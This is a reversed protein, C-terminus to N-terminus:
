TSVDQFLWQGHLFRSKSGEGGTKGEGGLGFVFSLFILSLLLGGGRLLWFIHFLLLLSLCLVNVWRESIDEDWFDVIHRPSHRLFFGIFKHIQTAWSLLLKDLLLALLQPSMSALLMSSLPHLLLDLLVSAASSLTLDLFSSKFIYASSPLFFLLSSRILILEILLFLFTM